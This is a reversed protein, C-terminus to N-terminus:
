SWSQRIKRSRLYCRLHLHDACSCSTMWSSSRASSSRSLHSIHCPEYSRCCSSDGSLSLSRSRPHPIHCAKRRTHSSRTDQCSAQYDHHCALSSFFILFSRLAESSSALFQTTSSSVWFRIALSSISESLAEGLTESSISQQSQETYRASRVVRLSLCVEVQSSSSTSLTSTASSLDQGAKSLAQV